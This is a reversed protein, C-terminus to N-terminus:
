RAPSLRAAIAREARDFAAPDRHLQFDLNAAMGLADIEYALQEPDEGGVVRALTDLWRRHGAVIADRVPGPPRSDFETRVATFFCGGPFVEDRMYGLWNAVLAEARARGRPEQLAPSVVREAFREAAAEYTALQLEEKSGFHAFLGSKSMQLDRALRGITLGELGDVSAIDAASQLISARTRQGRARRGDTVTM